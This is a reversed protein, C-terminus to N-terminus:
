SKTLRDLSSIVDEASQIRKSPTKQLMEHFLPNLRSSPEPLDPVPDIVHAYLIDKVSGKNYVPHGAIMEFGILGAIYIDTRVDLTRGQIQEPSAYMPADQSTLEGTLENIAHLRNLLGTDAFYLKGDTNIRLSKPSFRGIHIKYRHLEALGDMIQCFLNIAEQEYTGQTKLKQELTVSDVLDRMVLIAEDVQHYDTIPQINPHSITKMIELEKVLADPISGDEEKQVRIFYMIQPEGDEGKKVKFTPGGMDNGLYSVVKYGNIFAKGALIEEMTFPWESHGDIMAMALHIEHQTNEIAEQVERVALQSTNMPPPVGEEVVLPRPPAASLIRTINENLQKIQIKKKFLYNVAGMRIARIVSEMAAPTDTDKTSSIVIFPPFHDYKRALQLWDIGDEEGMENDFMLLDYDAWAFDAGPIGASVPDHIVLEVDPHVKEIFHQMVQQHQDHMDILLVRHSM